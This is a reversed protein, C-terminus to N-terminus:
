HSAAAAGVVKARQAPPVNQVRLFMVIGYLLVLIGVVLLLPAFVTVKPWPDDLKVFNGQQRALAPVVDAKFYDRVAPVTRAPEGSFRTLRETGPVAQYGDTITPLSTLVQNLGPLDRQLTTALQAKSVGLTSALFTQVGPLEATVGSLPLAMLLATAHPFKDKLLAVVQAQSLGTGKAVFAILKPVEAAAGGQEDVIPETLNTAADVVAVGAATGAIRQETFAPRAADLVDNGGALRPFLNLALVLVVVAAGVAAVTGWSVLEGYHSLQGRKIAIANVLGFVTVIVGVILLIMPLSGIGERESLNTMNAQQSEVVPILDKSFYDRVEPVTRVPTGSFRTFGDTGPVSHWAGTVQPLATIAQSLAPFNKALAAKVQEPSLKLAGALFTILRTLEANTASLPVAQLLAATHPAKAQLARLVEAQSLGTRKSLITLLAPIEGVAQAKSDVVPGAFDVISSVMDVGGRAGVARDATFAPSVDDVLQQGADLRKFLGLGLVLAIVAVGVLSVVVWPGPSSKRM